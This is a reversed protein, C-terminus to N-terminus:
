NCGSAQGAAYRLGDTPEIEVREPLLGEEIAELLTAKQHSRDQALLREIPWLASEVFRDKVHDDCREGDKLDSDPDKGGYWPDHAMVGNLELHYGGLLDRLIKEITSHDPQAAGGELDKDPIPIM